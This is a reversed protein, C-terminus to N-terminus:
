GIKLDTQKNRGLHSARMKQKTEESHKKGKHGASIAARSAESVQRGLCHKNGM